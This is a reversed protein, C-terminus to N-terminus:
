PGRAKTSVRRKGQRRHRGRNAAHYRAIEQRTIERWPVDDYGKSLGGDLFKRIREVKTKYDHEEIKPRFKVEKVGMASQAKADATKKKQEYKFKGFDM